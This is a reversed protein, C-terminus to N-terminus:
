LSACCSFAGPAPSRPNNGARKGFSRSPAAPAGTGGADRVPAGRCVGASSRRPFPESFAPGSSHPLPDRSPVPKGAAAGPASRWGRQRLPPLEVLRPAAVSGFAAACSLLCSCLAIIFVGCGCWRLEQPDAGAEPARGPPSSGASGRQRGLSTPSLGVATAAAPDPLLKRGTCSTAAPISVGGGGCHRPLRHDRCEGRCGQPALLMHLSPYCCGPAHLPTVGAGCTGRAKQSVAGACSGDPGSTCLRPSQQM